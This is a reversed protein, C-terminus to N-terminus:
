NVLWYKRQFKYCSSEDVLGLISYGHVNKYVKYYKKKCLHKKQIEEVNVDAIINDNKWECAWNNQQVNRYIKNM